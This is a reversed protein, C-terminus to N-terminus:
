HVYRIDAALGAARTHRSSSGISVCPRQIQLVLFHGVLHCPQLISSWIMQMRRHMEMGAIHDMM